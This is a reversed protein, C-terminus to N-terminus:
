DRYGIAGLSSFPHIVIVPINRIFDTIAGLRSGRRLDQLSRLYDKALNEGFLM